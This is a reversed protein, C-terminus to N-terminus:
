IWYYNPTAHRLLVGLNWRFAFTLEVQDLSCTLRCKTPSMGITLGKFVDVGDNRKNFCVETKISPEKDVGLRPNELISGVASSLSQFTLKPLLQGVDTIGILPKSQYSKM